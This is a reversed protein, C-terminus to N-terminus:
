PKLRARAGRARKEHQRNPSLYRAVWHAGDPGHERARCTLSSRLDAAAPARNAPPPNAPSAACADRLWLGRRAPTQGKPQDPVLWNCKNM